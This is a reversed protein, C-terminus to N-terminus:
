GISMQRRFLHRKRKLGRKVVDSNYNLYLKNNFVTFADPQTEAKYGRSTGFACYGGYQPAFKEPAAKFAELNEKTSFFWYADNWKVTFEKQGKVPKGEKFYAVADYGRIAGEDTSFIKPKQALLSSVMFLLLAVSVFRM